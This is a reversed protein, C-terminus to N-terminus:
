KEDFEEDDFLNINEDFEDEVENFENESVNNIIELINNLADEPFDPLQIVDIIWSSWDGNHINDLEDTTDSDILGQQEMELLVERLENVITDEIDDLENNEIFDVIKNVKDDNYSTFDESDDEPLGEPIIEEVNEKLIDLGTNTRKTKTHKKNWNSNFDDFSILNELKKM